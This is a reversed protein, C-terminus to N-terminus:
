PRTLTRVSQVDMDICMAGQCLPWSRKANYMAHLLRCYLTCEHLSHPHTSSPCASASHHPYLRAQIPDLVRHMVLYDMDLIARQEMSLTDQTESSRQIM